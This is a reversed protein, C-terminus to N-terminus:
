DILLVAIREPNKPAPFQIQMGANAATKVVNIGLSEPSHRKMTPFNCTGAATNCKECLRCGPGCITTLAFAYGANFAAHELELMARHLKRGETVYATVFAFASEKSEKKASPDILEHFLSYRIEERFETESRFRVVLAYRYDRLSKRFDEVPPAYPPCTLYKGYEYCGTSCKQRVRDEVIIQDAPTIRAEAAGAEKAKDVLFGFEQIDTEQKKM